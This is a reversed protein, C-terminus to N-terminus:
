STLLGEQGEADQGNADEQDAEKGNSEGQTIIALVSYDTLGVVVPHVSVTKKNEVKEAFVSRCRDCIYGVSVKRLRRGCQQCPFAMTDGDWTPVYNPM